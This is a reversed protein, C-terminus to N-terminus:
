RGITTSVPEVSPVASTARCWPAVTTTSSRRPKPEAQQAPSQAALQEAAEKDMYSGIPKDPKDFAPDDADVRTQTM